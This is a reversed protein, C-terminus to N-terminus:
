PLPGLRGSAAFPTNLTETATTCKEGDRCTEPEEAERHGGSMDTAADCEELRNGTLDGNAGCTCSHSECMIM